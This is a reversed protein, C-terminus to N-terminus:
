IGVRHVTLQLGYRQDEDLKNDLDFQALAGPPPPTEFAFEIVGNENLSVNTLRSGPPLGKDVVLTATEVLVKGQTMYTEILEKSVEIIRM